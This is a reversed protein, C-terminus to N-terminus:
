APRDPALSIWTLRWAGDIRGGARYYPVFALPARHEPSLLIPRHRWRLQWIEGVDPHGRYLEGTWTGRTLVRCPMGYRRRLLHLLPEQLLMDGLRGFRIVLPVQPRAPGNPSSM